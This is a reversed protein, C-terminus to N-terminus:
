FDCTSQNQNVSHACRHLQWASSRPNRLRGPLQRRSCCGVAGHGLRNSIWGHLLKLDAWLQAFFFPDCSRSPQQNLYQRSCLLSRCANDLSSFFRIHHLKIFLVNKFRAHFLLFDEQLLNLWM